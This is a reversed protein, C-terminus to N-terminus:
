PTRPPIDITPLEGGFHFGRLAIWCGAVLLIGIVQLLAVLPHMRRTGYVEIMLYIIAPIAIAVVGLWFLVDITAL